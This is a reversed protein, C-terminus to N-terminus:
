VTSGSAMCRKEYQWRGKTLYTDTKKHCDICLTRGNNIDFRLDPFYAFPKIHDANLKGPKSEKCHVCTFNDREFVATRWAKYEISKRIKENIKTVGGKWNPNKEGVFHVNIIGKNWATQLGKLGKNWPKSKNLGSTDMWEKRGKEGKNWATKGYMVESHRKSKEKDLGMCGLSCYKYARNPNHSKTFSKECTKCINTIM